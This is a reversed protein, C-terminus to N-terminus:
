AFPWDLCQQVSPLTHPLRRPRTALPRRRWHQERAPQRKMTARQPRRAAPEVDCLLGDPHAPPFKTAFFANKLRTRRDENSYGKLIMCDISGALFNRKETQCRIKKPCRIDNLIGM